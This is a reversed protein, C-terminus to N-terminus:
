LAPKNFPQTTLNTISNVMEVIFAPVVEVLLTMGVVIFAGIVFWMAIAFIVQGVVKTAQGINFLLKM